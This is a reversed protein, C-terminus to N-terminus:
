MYLMQILVLHSLTQVITVSSSFKASCYSQTRRTIFSVSICTACTLIYHLVNIISTDLLNCPSLSLARLTILYLLMYFRTTLHQFLADSKYSIEEGKRTNHVTSIHYPHINFKINLDIM